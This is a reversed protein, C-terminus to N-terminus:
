EKRVVVLAVDDMQPASGVFEAVSGLIAESITTASQGACEAAVAHLRELGFEELQENQAENLGDSYLVLTAGPPIRVTQQVWWEGELVGLPPGTVVLREIGAATLLFPQNQGANCYVLYGTDTNLLGYFITVFQEAHADQLLRENVARCVEAPGGSNAMAYTRLLSLTLAMFLAAAVGKDVVDAVILALHGDPMSFADYFDGSTERAPRLAAAVQWGLLQPLTAPLFGCQVKGALALERAMKKNAELLETQLRRLALHTEVRALVEEVHFPKTVYDVGGLAFARMKDDLEALASIFLVPIDATCPEAKLRDCVEFGDMGNMRIDLLILDPRQAAISSLARAGSTAARVRYGRGALMQCLLRLNAPTDDVVLIEEVLTANGKFREESLHNDM